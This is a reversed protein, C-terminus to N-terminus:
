RRSEKSDQRANINRGETLLNIIQENQEIIKKLYFEDQRQLEQMLDVNNYDQFLIQLSLTQFLLSLNDIINGKM